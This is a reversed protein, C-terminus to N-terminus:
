AAFTLYAQFTQHMTTCTKLRHATQALPPSRNTAFQPHTNLKKNSKQKEVNSFGIKLKKRGKSFGNLLFEPSSKSLYFCSKL